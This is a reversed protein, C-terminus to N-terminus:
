KTICVSDQEKKNDYLETSLYEVVKVGKVDLLVKNDAMKYIIVGCVKTPLPTSKQSSMIYVGYGILCLVIFIVVACGCGPNNEKKGDESELAGVMVMGLIEGFGDM